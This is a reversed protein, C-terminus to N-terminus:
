NGSYLKRWEKIQRELEKILEKSAEGVVDRAEQYREEFNDEKWIDLYRESVEKVKFMEQTFSDTNIQFGLLVSDHRAPSNYLDYKQQKRNITFYDGEAPHVTDYLGLALEITYMRKPSGDMYYALGDIHIYEIAFYTKSSIKGGKM